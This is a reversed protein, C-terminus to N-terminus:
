LLSLAEVIKSAQEEVLPMLPRRPIGADLGKQNVAMKIAAIQPNERVLVKNVFSVLHQNKGAEQFDGTKYSNILNVCERPIVNAVAVIAGKGGLMLTPLIMDASGSLASIKDGCLRIVEAMNGPNGSSDKLAVLGSCEEAVQAVMKPDVSYGTFKPVNYLIVPLDVADMIDIFHQKIEDGTPKFFFPTAVLAVEAGAEKADKTLKITERTSMAGTGAFLQIRGDIKDVMYELIGRKEERSLYPAEGTSANAVLGTVGAAIWHEILEGLADYMIEGHKDFPTINPVYLGEPRM